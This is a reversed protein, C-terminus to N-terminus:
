RAVILGRGTVVVWRGNQRRIADVRGVGPLPDGTFVEFIGQRGEVTAGGDGVERLVWDELVPLRTLQPPATAPVPPVAVRPPAISGTIDAAPPRLRDLTENLKALKAASTKAATEIDAKVGALDANFRAIEGEVPRDREAMATAGRDNAALRSVSFTAAAGSLAGVAAAIAVMAFWPLASRFSNPGPKPKPEGRLLRDDFTEDRGSDRYAGHWSSHASLRNLTIHRAPPAADSCADDGEATGRVTGPAVLESSGGLARERSDGQSHSPSHDEFEDGNRDSLADTELHNSWKTVM